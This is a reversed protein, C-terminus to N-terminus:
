SPGPDPAPPMDSDRLGFRAIERSPATGIRAVAPRAAEAAANGIPTVPPHTTAFFVVHAGEPMDPVVVDFTTPDPSAIATFSGDPSSVERYPVTPDGIVRRYLTKGADDQLEYWFGTYGAYGDTADSPVITM